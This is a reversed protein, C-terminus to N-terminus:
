DLGEAGAVWETAHEESDADLLARAADFSHGARIMAAVHKERTKPDVADGFPGFRRRRVFVLAAQRAEAESASSDERIDEAIGAARLAQEVRRPGYGRRSLDGARARAYGADDVYGLGRYREVLADIGPDGSEEDFGRERIKRQLYAALKAGSTAYRAVYALAMEELRQADLPKKARRRKAYPTEKAVMEGYEHWM